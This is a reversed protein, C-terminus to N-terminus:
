FLISFFLIFIYLYSNFIKEYNCKRENKKNEIIKHYIKDLNESILKYDYKKEITERGKKGLEIRMNENEFLMIIKDVFELSTDAIIINENSIYNLGMAGFLTSIIPKEMSWAELIKTKTGGGTRVPVIYICSQAIYERIDEVFGTVIINEDKGFNIIKQPPKQGVIYLKVLPIKEKLLPFINQCFYEMADINPEYYMTGTFVLSFPEIKTEMPKFYDSDVGNLLLDTKVKSCNKKLIEKEELSVMLCCNFKKCINFEYKKYKYYEFFLRIKKLKSIKRKKIVSLYNLSEINNQHLVTPINKAYKIYNSVYIADFHILDIKYNNLINLFTEKAEKSMYKRIVEPSFSIFRIIRYILNIKILPILIIKVDICWKKLYVIVDKEKESAFSLLIIKHKSSLNKILNFTKIKSGTILPYPLESTFFLITM